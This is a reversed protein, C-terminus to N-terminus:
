RGLFEVSGRDGGEGGDPASPQETGEEDGVVVGLVPPPREMEEAEVPVVQM